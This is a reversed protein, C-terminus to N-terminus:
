GAFVQRLATHFSHFLTAVRTHGVGRLPLVEQRILELFRVSGRVPRRLSAMSSKRRSKPPIGMRRGSSQITTDIESNTSNALRMSVALGGSNCTATGSMSATTEFAGAASGALGNAQIWSSLDCTKRGAAVGRRAPGTVECCLGAKFANYVQDDGSTAVSLALM